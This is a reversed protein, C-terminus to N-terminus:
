RCRALVVLRGIVIIWNVLRRRIRPKTDRLSSLYRCSLAYLGTTQLVTVEVKDAVAPGDAVLVRGLRPIPQAGSHSIHAGRTVSAGSLERAGLRRYPVQLDPAKTV